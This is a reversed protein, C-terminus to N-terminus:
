SVVTASCRTITKYTRASSVLFYCFYSVFTIILGIQIYSFLLLPLDVLKEDASTDPANPDKKACGMAARARHWLKVLERWFHIFGGPDVPEPPTMSEDAEGIELSTQAALSPVEHAEVFVDRPQVCRRPPRLMVSDDPPEYAFSLAPGIETGLDIFLILFASLGLPIGAALLLVTPILEGAIHGLTYAIAQQFLSIVTTTAADAVGAATYASTTATSCQFSHAHPRLARFLYICQKRV